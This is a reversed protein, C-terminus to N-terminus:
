LAPTYNGVLVQGTLFKHDCLRTFNGKMSGRKEDMGPVMYYIFLYYSLEPLKKFQSDSPM